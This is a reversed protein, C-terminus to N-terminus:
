ITLGKEARWELLKKRVDPGIQDLYWGEPKGLRKCERDVANHDHLTRSGCIVSALLGLLAPRFIDKHERLLAALSDYMVADPYADITALVEDARGLWGLSRVLYQQALPVTGARYTAGDAAANTLFDQMCQAAEAWRRQRFHDEGTVFQSFTDLLRQGPGYRKAIDGSLCTELFHGMIYHVFDPRVHARDYLWVREPASLMAMEYSPFYTIKDPHLRTWTEACARLVSKSHMNAVIIDGGSYTALLPVPSVTVVIRLAPGIGSELIRYVEELAVLNEDHSLVRFEFRDGHLLFMDRADPSANIYQATEKDFWAEILGLTIIVTQSTRLNALLRQLIGRHQLTTEYDLFGRAPHSLLDIWLDSDRQVRVISREDFRRVGFAFAIDNLIAFTNYRNAFGRGIKLKEEISWNLRSAVNLGLETLALEVERAFCSGIAYFQSASDIRQEIQVAPRVVGRAFRRWALHEDDPYQNSNWRSFRDLKLVNERAQAFSLRIDVNGTMPVSEECHAQEGFSGMKAAVSLIAGLAM